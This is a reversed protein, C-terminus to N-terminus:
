LPSPPKHSEGFHTFRTYSNVSSSRILKRCLQLRKAAALEHVFLAFGSMAFRHEPQTLLPMVDVFKDAVGFKENAQQFRVLRFFLARQRLHEAIDRSEGKILKGRLDVFLFKCIKGRRHPIDLPPEGLGAGIDRPQLPQKGLYGHQLADLIRKLEERRACFQDNPGDIGSGFSRRLRHGRTDRLLEALHDLHLLKRPIFFVRVLREGHEAM